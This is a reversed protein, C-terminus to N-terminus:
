RCSSALGLKCATARASKAEEAKGKSELRVAWAECQAAMGETCSKELITDVAADQREAQFSASCASVDLKDSGGFSLVLKGPTWVGGGKHMVYDAMASGRPGTIPLDGTAYGEGVDGGAEYNGCGVGIMGFSVPSGLKEVAQPCHEISELMAPGFGTASGCAVMGPPGFCGYGTVLAFFALAAGGKLVPNMTREYRVPSSPPARHTYQRRSM